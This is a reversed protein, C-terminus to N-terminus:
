STRATVAKKSATSAAEKEKLSIYREKTCRRGTM